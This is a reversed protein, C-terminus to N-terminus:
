RAVQGAAQGEGRGAVEGGRNAADAVEDQDELRRATELADKAAGATSGTVSALWAEESAFGAQEWEAAKAVRRGLRGVLTSAINRIATLDALAAKADPVSLLRADLGEALGAMESRLESM